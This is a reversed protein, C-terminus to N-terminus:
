AFAILADLAILRGDPLARLPNIEVEAMDPNAHALDALRGLVGVVAATDVPASGRLGRLLRAGALRGLEREMQDPTLDAAFLRVDHLAEAWIGGLGAVLVLGWNPDRRAGVILELGSPAMAEVLMGDLALGPLAAAVAADIRAWAARVAAGSDLGVAVAGAETKHALADAQGKLVVPFGIQEAAAAAEDASRVLAGAPIKVGIAQLAAKARFEALTGGSVTTLTPAPRRTARREAEGRAVAYRNVVAMARLARDASRFFPLGSVRVRDLAAPDLPHEDGLFALLVPKTSGEVVPLLHDLKALQQAPAGGMLPEVLGAVSPDALLAGAAAGFIQPQTMGMATLDLPNDPQAFDPLAAALAQLTHPALSALPLGLRECADIAVGALAGSNSAVAVGGPPPQPYRGLVAVADFLEDLGDVLAVGEREVLAQMVAHDGALAGTHSRAAAQARASRGPHMLVVPKGARRAAAAAELFMAPKRVTEVFLAFVDADASGVLHAFLDEVGLAAENGTSAAFAIDLGRAALAQRMNGAMAGSQALVVARPASHGVIPFVTEFTLPCSARYAVAGLCNPGLLALGADAAARSLADQALRGAEGTEAFGSAFVVTGGVGRRGCAEVAALVAAQPVVLVVADVGEPLEDISKLCPRGRIEDRSRSVLHIDGPFAFRELNALVAGGPTAPEPAAGVVAVSRPNLLRELAPRSM